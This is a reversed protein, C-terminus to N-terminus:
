TSHESTIVIHLATITTVANISCNPTCGDTKRIYFDTSSCNKCLHHSVLEVVLRERCSTECRMSLEDAFTGNPCNV